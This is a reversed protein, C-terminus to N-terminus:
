FESAGIEPPTELSLPNGYFDTEAPSFNLQVKVGANILPSFSNLKYATLTDIKYANNVTDRKTLPNRLKPDGFIGSIDNGSKEQGTANVFEDFSKYSKKGMIVVFMTNNAFYSNSRLILNNQRSEDINIMMAFNVTYFINNEVTTNTTPGQIKFCVPTNKGIGTSIITNNYIRNNKAGATSYIKIAALNNRLGDNKSINFRVINNDSGTGNSEGSILVSAGDNQHTYNYEAICSDSGNDFDIADGDVTNNSKIGYIENYSVNINRSEGTVIGGGSYFAYKGNNYILNREVKANYIHSLSIGNGSFGHLHPNVGKIDFIKNGSVLIDQYVLGWLMIGIDGCDYITNNEIKINTYGYQPVKDGGLSIGNNKFNRIICDRIIIKNSKRKAYTFVQIGAYPKSYKKSYDKDPDYLGAIEINEIIFGGNHLIALGIEKEARLVARGLGYSTIRIPETDTGSENNFLLNGKFLDGGRFQIVDGKKFIYASVKKLSNWAKDESLGSNQDNGYNSVYFTRTATSNLNYDGIQGYSIDCIFLVFLIQLTILLLASNNHFIIIGKLYHIVSTFFNRKFLKM